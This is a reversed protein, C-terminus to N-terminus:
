FSYEGGYDRTHDRWVTHYHIQSSYVVGNQCVFEIWVSPGDIRVYDANTTLGANGSFSIYTEDLEQEYTALLKATTVDDADQVWPKMAALVLAKQEANLSGVKLGAKTAPFKGDQGPGLLVDSFTQSLKASALQEASLSALMQAMGAHEANLPAYTTGSETWVKPEVGTFMPTASAVQGAKFITNVALHHGGFQLQWTGDTSPTGLFALFYTGSSYGGGGGGGPGGAPPAGTPAGAPPTGGQPANANGTPRTPPTGGGGASNPGGMGGSANLVDDAMLIQMAEDYGDDKVTGMAAKVVAQAALLQEANLTSFQIGNRCNNGCPLNSWKVANAQTAPLLVTAKQADTLTALFAQASCVVKGTQTPAAACDAPVAATQGPLTVGTVAVTGDAGVTATADSTASSTTQVSSTPTTGSTSPTAGSSTPTCGSLAASVILALTISLNRKM